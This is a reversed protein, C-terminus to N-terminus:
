DYGLYNILNYEKTGWYYIIMAVGIFFPLIVLSGIILSNFQGSSDPQFRIILSIGIAITITLGAQTIRWFYDVARKAQEQTEYGESPEMPISYLEFISGLLVGGSLSILVFLSSTHAPVLVSLATFLLVIGLSRPKLGPLGATFLLESWRVLIGWFFFVCYVFCFRILGVNITINSVIGVWESFLVFSVAAYISFTFIFVWTGSIPKNTYEKDIRKSFETFIQNLKM